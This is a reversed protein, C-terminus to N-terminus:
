FLGLLGFDVKLVCIDVTRGFDVVHYQFVLPLPNPLPHLYLVKKKHIGSIMMM